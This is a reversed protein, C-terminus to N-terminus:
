RIFFSDEESDDHTIHCQNSLLVFSFIDAACNRDCCVKSKLGPIDNELSIRLSGVNMRMNMACDLDQVNNM